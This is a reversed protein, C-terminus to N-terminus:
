RQLDTGDKGDRRSVGAQGPDNLRSCARHNVRCLVASHLRALYQHPLLRQPHDSLRPQCSLLSSSILPPWTDRRGRGDCRFLDRSTVVAVGMVVVSSVHAM